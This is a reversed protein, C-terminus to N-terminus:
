AIWSAPTRLGCVYLINGNTWQPQGNRREYGSFELSYSMEHGEHPLRCNWRHETSDAQAYEINLVGDRGMHTEM